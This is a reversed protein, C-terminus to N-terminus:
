DHENEAQLRLEEEMEAKMRAEDRQRKLRKVNRRTANQNRILLMFMWTSAVAVGYLLLTSLVVRGPYTTGFLIALTQQLCILMLSIMYVLLAKGETTRYWPSGFAFFVGFIVLMVTLLVFAVVRAGRLDDQVAMISALGVAFLVVSWKGLFEM